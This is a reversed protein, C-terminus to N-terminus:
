TFLNESNFISSIFSQNESSKGSAVILIQYDRFCYYAFIIMKNIFLTIDEISVNISTKLIQSLYKIIYFYGVANRTGEEKLVSSLLKVLSYRNNFFNEFDLIAM